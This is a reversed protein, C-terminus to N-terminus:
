TKSVLDALTKESLTQNLTAALACMVSHHHCEGQRPCKKGSLCDVKVTPGDLVEMVEKLTIEQPNKALRYGGTAGEKSSVIGAELLASAVQGIFKYPLKHNESISRLSQLEEPKNALAALLTLGYDTKKTIKVM